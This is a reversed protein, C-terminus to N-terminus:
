NTKFEFLGSDSTNGKADRTIVKWYYTTNSNVAVETLTTSTHQSKILVPTTTTGLYIDYNLLDNDADSGKWQLSIKGSTPTVSQGLTPNTIEAPYPPYSTVALGANYFKWTSSNVTTPNKSSKSTVYWSYPTNRKLTLEASTTSATQTQQTQNLLNTVTLQYSDANAGAVWSFTIRSDTDSIVTGSTCAENNSPSSLTAATPAPAPTEKSGGGGCSSLTYSLLTLIILRRM